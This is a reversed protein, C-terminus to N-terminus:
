RTVLLPLTVRVPGNVMVSSLAMSAAQGTMGALKAGPAETVQVGGVGDVLGVEVGTRDGVGGGAGAFESAVRDGGVMVLDGDVGGLDDGDISLSPTRSRVTAPSVGLGVDAVGDVVGEVDVVGAVDGEGVDVRM